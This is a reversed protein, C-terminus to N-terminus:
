FPYSFVPHPFQWKEWVTLFSGNKKLNMPLKKGHLYEEKLTNYLASCVIDHVEPVIEPVLHNICFNNNDNNFL